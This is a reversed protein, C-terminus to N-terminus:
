QQCTKSQKALRELSENILWIVFKYRVIERQTRQTKRKYNFFAFWVFACAEFITVALYKFLLVSLCFFVLLLSVCEAFVVITLTPFLFIVWFYTYVLPPTWAWNPTHSRFSNISLRTQSKGGDEWLRWLELPLDDNM